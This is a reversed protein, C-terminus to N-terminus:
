EVEPPPQGAPPKRGIGRDIWWVTIGVIAFLPAIEWHGIAACVGGLLFFIGIRLWGARRPSQPRDDRPAETV